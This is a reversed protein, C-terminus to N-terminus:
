KNLLEGAIEFARRAYFEEVWAKAADVTKFFAITQSGRRKSGLQLSFVAEDAGIGRSARFEAVWSPSGLVPSILWLKESDETAGSWNDKIIQTPNNTWGVYNHTVNTM